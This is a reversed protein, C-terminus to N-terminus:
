LILDDTGELVKQVPRQGQNKLDSLCPLETPIDAM